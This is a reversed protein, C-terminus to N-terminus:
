ASRACRWCSHCARGNSSCGWADAGRRRRSWRPCGAWSITFCMRCSRETRRRWPSCYTSTSTSTWTSSACSVSSTTSPSVAVAFWTHPARSWSAVVGCHSLSRTTSSRTCASGPLRNPTPPGHCVRPSRRGLTLVDLTQSAHLGLTRRHAAAERRQSVLSAPPTQHWVENWVPEDGTWGGRLSRQPSRAVEACRQRRSPRHDSELLKRGRRSTWRTLPLSPTGHGDGTAHPRAPHSSIGVEIM